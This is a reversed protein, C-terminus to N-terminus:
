PTPALPEEAVSPGTRREHIREGTACERARASGRFRRSSASGPKRRGANSGTGNSAHRGVFLEGESRADPGLEVAHLHARVQRIESGVPPAYSRALSGIGALGAVKSPVVPEHLPPSLRK